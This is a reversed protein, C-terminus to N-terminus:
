ARVFRTKRALNQYWAEDPESSVSLEQGNPLMLSLKKGNWRLILREMETQKRGGLYRWFSPASRIVTVAQGPSLSLLFSKRSDGEETSDIISDPPAEVKLFQHKGLGPRLSILANEQDSDAEPLLSYGKGDRKLTAHLLFHDRMTVGYPTHDYTVTRFAEKKEFAAKDVPIVPLGARLWAFAETEYNSCPFDPYITPYEDETPPLFLELFGNPRYIKTAVEFCRM